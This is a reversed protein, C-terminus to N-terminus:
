RTATRPVTHEVSRRKGMLGLLGALGLLGIWSYDGDRDDTATNATNDPTQALAAGNLGVTLILMAFLLARFKRLFKM